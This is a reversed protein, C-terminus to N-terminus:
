DKPKPIKKVIKEIIDKEKPILPKMVDTLATKTPEVSKIIESKIEEIKADSLEQKVVIIKKKNVSPKITKNQIKLIKTEIKM